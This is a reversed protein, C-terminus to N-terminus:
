KEKQSFDSRGARDQMHIIKRLKINWDGNLMKKLLMQLFRENLMPLNVVHIMFEGNFHISEAVSDIIYGSSTKKSSQIERLEESVPVGYITQIHGEELMDDLTFFELIKSNSHRNM